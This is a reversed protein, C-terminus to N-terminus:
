NKLVKRCEKFFKRVFDHCADITKDNDTNGTYQAVTKGTSVEKLYMSGGVCGRFSYYGYNDEIATNYRTVTYTHLAGASDRYARERQWQVYTNKTISPNVWYSDLSYRLIDADVYYDKGAGAPKLVDEEAARQLITFGIIRRINDDGAINDPLNITGLAVNSQRVGKRAAKKLESGFNKVIDRFLKERNNRYSQSRKNYVMIKEHQSNYLICDAEVIYLYVAAAPVVHDVFYTFDGASGYGRPGGSVETWSDLRVNRFVVAPSIDKQIRNEKITCVLYADVGATEPAFPGGNPAAEAQVFSFAKAKKPLESMLCATGGTGETDGAAPLVAIKKVSGLNGADYWIGNYAFACIHVTLLLISIVLIKM